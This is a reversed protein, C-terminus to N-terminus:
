CCISVNVLGGEANQAYSRGTTTCALDIDYFRGRKVARVPCILVHGRDTLGLLGSALAVIKILRPPLEGEGSTLLPLPPLTVFASAAYAESVQDWELEPKSVTLPADMGRMTYAPVPWVVVDWSDM